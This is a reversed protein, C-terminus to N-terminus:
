AVEQLEAILSAPWYKRADGHDTQYHEGDERIPYLLVMLGRDPWLEYIACAISAPRGAYKGGPMTVVEGRREALFADVHARIASAHEEVTMM